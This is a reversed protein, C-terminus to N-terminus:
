RCVNLSETDGTHLIRFYKTENEWSMVNGLMSTLMFILRTGKQVVRMQFKIVHEYGNPGGLYLYIKFDLLTHCHSSPSILLYQCSSYIEVNKM